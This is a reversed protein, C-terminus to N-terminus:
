MRSIRQFVLATEVDQSHDCRLRVITAPLGASEISRGTAFVTLDASALGLAVGRGVGRSAGTVLALPVLAIIIASRGCRKCDAENTMAFGSAHGYPGVDGCLAAAFAAVLWGERGGM